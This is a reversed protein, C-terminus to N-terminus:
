LAFAGESIIEGFQHLAFGIVKKAAMVLSLLLAGKTLLDSQTVLISISDDLICVSSCTSSPHITYSPPPTHTSVYLWYLQTAFVTKEILDRNWHSFIDLQDPCLRQLVLTTNSIILVQTGSDQIPVVVWFMKKCAIKLWLILLFSKQNFFAFQDITYPLKDVNKM